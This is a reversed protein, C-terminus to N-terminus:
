SIPVPVINKKLLFHSIPLTGQGSGKRIKRSLYKKAFTTSHNLSNVM